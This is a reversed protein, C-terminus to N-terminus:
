RAAIVATLDSYVESLKAALNRIDRRLSSRPAAQALPQGYNMSLIASAFDNSIVEPTVGGLASEADKLTIMTHRKRYRNALPALRDMSVGRETLASLLSLALRIDKVTLQFIILTAESAGALTAAVEIPLRPADIVTYRYARKFADLADGLHLYELPAPEVPNTSAPSMLAHLGESYSLATSHVLQSDIRGRDALVDALGYQGDLGLYGAVAGYCCDMDVLLAAESGELHLENALNVALTTAGCGGSASLITIIGGRKRIKGAGNPILRHLVGVLESPIADKVMFHRAGVQMAELMLDDRRATSLVIFRTSVLRTIIPELSTLMWGPGPDIDVLVAAPRAPELYTLLQELNQCVGETAFGGNQELAASVSTATEPEDTVLLLGHRSSM